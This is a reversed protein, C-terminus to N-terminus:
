ILFFSSSVESNSAGLSMNPNKHIGIFISQILLNKRCTVFVEFVLFISNEFHFQFIPNSVFQNLSEIFQTFLIVCRDMQIKSNYSEWEQGRWKSHTKDPKQRHKCLM